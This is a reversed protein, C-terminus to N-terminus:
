QATWGGDVPLIIGTIFDSEKAALFTAAKAVSLPNGLKHKSAYIPQKYDMYNLIDEDSQARLSMPTEILGPAIVNVRIHRKAYYIAMARSMGIIAAKSAAYAHTSFMENGGVMGLVSATNIICGGRNSELWRKVMFKNMVIQTTLNLDFTQRYADMSLSHLPGDGFRRGSGGAINFLVEILGFEKEIRELASEVENENTCDVTEYRFSEPFSSVLSLVLPDNSPKMDIGVVRDGQALFLNISAQGIGGLAGTIVVVRQTNM